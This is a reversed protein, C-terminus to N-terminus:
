SGMMKSTLALIGIVYFPLVIWLALIQWKTRKLIARIERAEAKIVANDLQIHQAILEIKDVGADIKSEIIQIREDITM